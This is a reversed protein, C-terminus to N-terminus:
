TWIIAFAAVFPPEDSTSADIQFNIAKKLIKALAQGSLEIVPKGLDNHFVEINHWRVGSVDSIAKIVAEKLAFMKALSEVCKERRRCFEIEDSTFIKNEFHAGFKSVLRDIRRVDLIDIGAGLIM